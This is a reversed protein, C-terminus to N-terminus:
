QDIILKTPNHLNAYYKLNKLFNLKIKQKKWM